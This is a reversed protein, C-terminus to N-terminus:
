MCLERFFRQGMCVITIHTCVYMSYTHMECMEVPSLVAVLLAGLVASGLPLGVGMSAVVGGGVLPVGSVVGVVVTVWLWVGTPMAVGSAVLAVGGVDRVLVAVAPLSAAGSCLVKTCTACRTCYVCQELHVTGEVKKEVPGLVILLVFTTCGVLSTVRVADGSVLLVGDVGEVILAVVPVYMCVFAFRTCLIWLLVKCFPRGKHM